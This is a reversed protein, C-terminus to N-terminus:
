QRRWLMQPYLTNYPPIYVPSFNASRFAAEAEKATPYSTVLWARDPFQWRDPSNYDLPTLANVLLQNNSEQGWYYAYVELSGAEVHITEQAQWQESLIALIDQHSGKRVQYYDSLAPLAAFFFLLGFLVTLRSNQQISKWYSTIQAILWDVGYASFYIMTPVLMIIQRSFLPYNKLINLGIIAFIQLIVSYVLISSFSSPNNKINTIIGLIAFVLYLVGLIWGAPSAPYPPKWGLGIFLFSPLSEYLFLSLTHETYVGGFIKLGLLFAISLLIASVGFYNRQIQWHEKGYYTALWLVVNGLVLILYFHFYLGIFTILTFIVWNRTRISQVANLGLYLSLTFFFILPAYFRLEQSYEILIPSLAMMLLGFMAVRKKGSLLYCLRYGILLTLCGWIAEPLRLWGEDHSIHAAMWAIVYDLPMAMIHENAIALAQRLTPQFAANAVGLEDMWFIKGSLQWIRLFLGLGAIILLAGNEVFWITRKTELSNTM